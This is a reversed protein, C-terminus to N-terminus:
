HLLILASFLNPKEAASILQMIPPMFFGL